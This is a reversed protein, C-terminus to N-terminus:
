NYFNPPNSYLLVVSANEAMFPKIRRMLEDREIPGKTAYILKKFKRLSKQGLTYHPVISQMDRDEVPEDLVVCANIGQSVAVLAGWIYEPDVSEEASPSWLGDPFREKLMEKFRAAISEAKKVTDIM